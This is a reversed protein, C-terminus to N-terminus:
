FSLKESIFIRQLKFRTNYAILLMCLKCVVILEYDAQLETKFSNM